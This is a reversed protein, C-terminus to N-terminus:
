VIRIDACSKFTEQPRIIKMLKTFSLKIQYLVQPGCGLAGTGDGCWDWRNAAIYVWRIVCHNCTLGAPLRLSVPFDRSLYDPLEYERKGDATNVRNAVFCAESEVNKDINCIEFVFKGRHNVTVRYWIKLKIM